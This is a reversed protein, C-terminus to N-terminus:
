RCAPADPDFACFFAEYCNTDRAPARRAVWAGGELTFDASASDLTFTPIEDLVAPDLLDEDVLEQLVDFDIPRMKMRVTVRTISPDFIPYTVDFSHQLIEGDVIETAAPLAVNIYGTPSASSPAPRWFMHTEEGNEDFVIDRFLPFGGGGSTACAIPDLFGAAPEGDPVAGLTCVERGAADFARMEIWLRRDQSAGSPMKHGAQTEVTYTIGPQEGRSMGTEEMILSISQDLACEVAKEYAERDHWATVAIDVGPWLHSHVLRSAVPGGTQDLAAFGPRTPMHCGSCTVFAITGDESFISEKYEAFTRELHVGNDNVIDHCGGCLRNSEPSRSDLLASGQVGHASPQIPRQIAGRMIQDNALTVMANNDGTVEVANHCFYCTVGKMPEPLAAVSEPSGDTLGAAVAMPAHCNVCFKGMAGNTERQGLTNMAVFVPDETAYAHMSAKWERYHIPHCGKCTEPDQLQEVTMFSPAPTGGESGCAAALSALLVLSLHHKRM